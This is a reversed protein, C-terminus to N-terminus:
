RYSTSYATTYATTYTSRTTITQAGNGGTSGAVLVAFNWDAGARQAQNLSNKFYCTQSPNGNNGPGWGAGTCDSRAACANVCEEFSSAQISGIDVAQGYGSYDVGCLHTFQRGNSAVYQSSSLNPCLNRGTTGTPEPGSAGTRGSTHSTATTHRSTTRTTGSGRNTTQAAAASGSNGNSKQSASAIGVGAGIGVGLLVLGGLAILAWFMSKRLGLLRGPLLTEGSSTARPRRLVMEGGSVNRQSNAPSGPYQPPVPGSEQHSWYGVQQQSVVQTSAKEEPYVPVHQPAGHDPRTDQPQGRSEYAVPAPRQTNYNDM